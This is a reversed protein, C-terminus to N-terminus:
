LYESTYNVQVITRWQSIRFYEEYSLQIITPLDMQKQFKQRLCREICGVLESVMDLEGVLLNVKYEKDKSVLSVWQSNPGM